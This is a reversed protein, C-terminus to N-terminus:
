GSLLQFPSSYLLSSAALVIRLITVGIAVVLVLLLAGTVASIGENIAVGPSIDTRRERRIVAAAGGATALALVVLFLVCPATM